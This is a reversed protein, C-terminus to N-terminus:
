RPSRRCWHCCSLPMASTTAISNIVETIPSVLSLLLTANRLYHILHEGRAALQETRQAELGFAKVQRVNTISEVMVGLLKSQNDMFHFQADRARRSIWTVCASLIPLLALAILSLWPNLYVMMGVLFLLTAPHQWVASFTELVGAAASQVDNGILSALEGARIHVHFAIPNDQIERFLDIRIEQSIRAFLTTLMLRNLIEIGSHALVVVLAIGVWLAITGAAGGQTLSQVVQKVSWALLGSLGALVVALGLSLALKRWRPRAYQWLFRVGGRDIMFRAALDRTHVAASEKNDQGIEMM